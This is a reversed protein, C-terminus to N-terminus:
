EGVIRVLGKQRGTERDVSFFTVFPISGDLRPRSPFLEGGFVLKQQKRGEAFDLLAPHLRSEDVGTPDWCADFDGPLPKNTVLSGNLYVARCGAGWLSAYARAFGELLTARRPNFSFRRSTEDLTAEHIGPPLVKWPGGIDVLLPLVVCCYHQTTSKDLVDPRPAPCLDSSDLSSTAGCSASILLVPAGGDRNWRAPWGPVPAPAAPTRWRTLSASPSAASARGFLSRTNLGRPPGFSRLAAYGAAARGRVGRFPVGRPDPRGRREEAVAPSPARGPCCCPSLSSSARGTPLSPCTCSGTHGPPPKPRVAARGPM